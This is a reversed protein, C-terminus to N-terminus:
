GRDEQPVNARVVYIIMVGATVMAAPVSWKAVGGVILAFGAFALLENKLTKKM